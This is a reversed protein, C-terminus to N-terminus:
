KLLVIRRVGAPKGDVVLRAFYVGSTARNGVRTSGDWTADREGKGISVIRKVLAGNVDYVDIVAGGPASIRLRTERVFPNPSASLIGAPLPPTTNSVASATGVMKWIQGWYGTFLLEHNRDQCISTFRYTAEPPYHFIEVNSPPHVGDWYLAWIQDTQTDAYIYRGVLEPYQTGSYVWGGIIAAGWPSTHLYQWLPLKINKGTTDCTTPFDCQTAEMLAWGFNRGKSIIDVEEWTDLGVDGGWMKGDPAFSFRWLNRFGYAWIEERYGLANGVFPNDPPIGYNLGNAPHDVDIRIMKGKLSGLKQSDPYVGDEGVSVYLYGDSGFHMDGAKHYLNTQTIEILRLESNPDAVNPDASVHYRALVWKIPLTAKNIYTVYFYGNQAYNPHFVLGCLGSEFVNETSDALDLFTTFTSVNPTNAFERIVGNKEMAFLRATGDLPDVLGTLASFNSLNPFAYIVDTAASATFPAGAALLLVFAILRAGRPLIRRM